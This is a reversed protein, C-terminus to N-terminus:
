PYARAAAEGRCSPAIPASTPVPCTEAPTKAWFHAVQHPVCHFSTCAACSAKGCVSSDVRESSSPAAGQWYEGNWLYCGTTRLMLNPDDCYQLALTQPEFSTDALESMQSNLTSYYDTATSLHFKDKRPLFPYVPSGGGGAFQQQVMAPMVLNVEGPTRASVGPGEGMLFFHDQVM